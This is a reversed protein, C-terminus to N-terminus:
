NKPVYLMGQLHHLTYLPCVSWANVGSELFVLAMDLRVLRLRRDLSHVCFHGRWHSWIGYWWYRLWFIWLRSCDWLFFPCPDFQMCVYVLPIYEGNLGCRFCTVHERFFTFCCINEWFTGTKGKLFFFFAKSWCMRWCCDTRSNIWGLALWAWNLTNSPVSWAV